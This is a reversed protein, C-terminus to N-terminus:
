FRTAQGKTTLAPVFTSRPRSDPRRIMPNELSGPTMLCLATIAVVASAVVLFILPSTWNGSAAHLVGVALPGMAGLVYGVGQVFGSLAISGEYTLTRLNVLLLSLPFLLTGLGIAAVWVWTGTTPLVILGLYGVVFAAVGPYVLQLPERMKAALVPVFVAAPIGMAALLSLQLGAETASVGATTTLMLPLWAFMAYGNFSSVAFLLAVAWAIRSKWLGGISPAPISSVANAADRSRRGLMMALWPIIALAGLIAWSGVSERWSLAQELPVALMPPVLAGVSTLTVYLATVLGIRSPFYKKVLPPLLVNAVGMGVFALVGGVLLAALSEATARVIQGIVISVLAGLLIWEAHVRRSLPHMTLGAFAFCAPALMGLIGLAVSDLPIDQEVAVIIPSLSAVAPRLNLAVLLIGALALPRGWRRTV